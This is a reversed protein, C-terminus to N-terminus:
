MRMRSKGRKNHTDDSFAARSIETLEEHKLNNCVFTNHAAMVLRFMEYYYNGFEQWRRENERAIREVQADSLQRNTEPRSMNYKEVECYADLVKKAYEVDKLREYEIGNEKYSEFIDESYLYDDGLTNRFIQYQKLTILM